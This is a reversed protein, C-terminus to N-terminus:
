HLGEKMHIFMQDLLLGFNFSKSCKDKTELLVLLWHSVDLQAETLVKAKQRIWVIPCPQEYAANQLICELIEIFYILTEKAKDKDKFIESQLWVLAGDCDHFHDLYYKVGALANQYSEQESVLQITESDHIFHSLLYSDQQDVGLEMAQQFCVEWNLSRFPLIQCRSVITPLLREIQEVILIATTSFGNPEELFKLLSNLAEPTANEAQNLIYIKKGTEELATKNFQHQLKLVEEKKISKHTGDLILLDGYKGEAVRCCAECQECAFDSRHQCVLSQALLIATQLKPTGKPGCFLLAHSLRESVLGNKLTQYVIPQEQELRSRM